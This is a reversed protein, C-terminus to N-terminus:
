ALEAGSAKDFGEVEGALQRAFHACCEGAVLFRDDIFRRGGLADQGRAQHLVRGFAEAVVKAPLVLDQLLGDARM